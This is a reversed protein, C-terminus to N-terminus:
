SGQARAEAQYKAGTRSLYRLQLLRELIPAVGGPSVGIQKAVASAPMAGSRTILELVQAEQDLLGPHPPPPLRLQRTPMGSLIGDYARLSERLRVGGSAMEYTRFERSHDSGRM